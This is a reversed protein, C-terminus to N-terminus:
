APRINQNVHFVNDPDYTAKARALREYNGGYTARVRADGEEMMFNVYAGGASYPHVAEWYGIAWDRLASAGAPDSDVSIIVQSWRTDRYGWPTDGSGVDHAAGDIPYIHTGCKWTPMRENWETNRAISEDPLENVFDARWYWQEGTPYLEDFLSNLAPIPLRQAGHMLPTGVQLMPAMAQEAQEDSGDISWVIGCVKRMHIEEPFPPGPPVTHFCFFGSANRSLAPLFERYASMVEDAQEIPWFTPGGVVDSVPHARFTFETVVGFNGGGGRLAWFLEANEDASATVLQGDALVVQASLLNDITLGCSRTLHGIGGGLTLGGVGTTSIIGCPVALGHPNTAADVEKWTCGGAVRVTRTDPDVSVSRLTSLDAVIGDDVSALGAGNHAGGRIALPMGHERAFGVARAVDAASTCRAIVAPRKDFMANYLARAEDYRADAPGIVEGEFGPALERRATEATAATVNV